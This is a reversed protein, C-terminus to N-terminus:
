TAFALVPGRVVCWFRFPLDIVDDAVRRGKRHGHLRILYSVSAVEDGDVQRTKGNVATGQQVWLGGQFSPPLPQDAAAPLRFAVPLDVMPAGTRSTAATKPQFALSERSTWITQCQSLQASSLDAEPRGFELPTPGARM